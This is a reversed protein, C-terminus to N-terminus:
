VETRTQWFVVTNGFPDTLRIERDGWSQDVIGPRANAYPRTELDALCADIDTVEVRLASGPTCDGHHGSLHIICADRRIQVYLPLDPAFRNEWQVEFGLWDCWFARAQGEDFSRLIPVPPGLKVAEAAAPAATEAPPCRSSLLASM